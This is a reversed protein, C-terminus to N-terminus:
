QPTLTYQWSNNDGKTRSWLPAQGTTYRELVKTARRRGVGITECAKVLDKQVTLGSTLADIIAAITPNDVERAQAALLDVYGTLSVSRDPNISFTIPEFIERTKDPVTTVIKSGDQRDGPILYILEDCDSRIDGVGEFVPLGDKDKHKNTHALLVFTAGKNCMARLYKMFIKVSSKGMLDVCKKLTDIVILQNHLSECAELAEFFTTDQTGTIDFNVLAFGNDRAFNQYQKLDGGSCDMNVYTVDTEESVQSCVWNMITTKGANPEACLVVIHQSIILNSFIFRAQEINEVHEDRVTFEDIAAAAASRGFLYTKVSEHDVDECYQAWTNYGAPPYYSPCDLDRRIAAVVPMNESIGFIAYKLDSETDLGACFDVLQEPLGPAITRTSVGLKHLATADSISTAIVVENGEGLDVHAPANASALDASKPLDLNRSATDSESFSEALQARLQEASVGQATQISEDDRPGKLLERELADRNITPNITEANETSAQNLMDTAEHRLLAGRMRPAM